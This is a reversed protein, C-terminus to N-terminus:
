DARLAIMPDVHSARRASVWSALAGIAVLVVCAVATAVLGTRLVIGATQTSGIVLAVSLPLGWLVGRATTRLGDAVFRGVLRASSAGLAARIGIERTRTAVTFAIIGGLGLSVLLLVFVPSASAAAVAQAAFGLNSRLAVDMPELQAVPIGPALRRIGDRVTPVLTAAPARTRALLVCIGDM